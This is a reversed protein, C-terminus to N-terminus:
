TPASLTRKIHMNSNLVYSINVTPINLMNLMFINVNTNYIINIYKILLQPIKINYIHSIGYKYKFNLEDKQTKLFHIIDTKELILNTVTPKNLFINRYFLNYSYFEPLLYHELMFNNLEDFSNFTLKNQGNNDLFIIEESELNILLIKLMNFKINSNFFGPDINIIKDISITIINENEM